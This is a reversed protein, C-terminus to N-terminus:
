RRRTGRQRKSRGCPVSVKITAKRRGGNHGAARLLANNNTRCLDRTPTLIGRRGGRLRLTFERIPVDPISAFRSLVRAGGLVTTGDLLIRVQGDLRVGLNPIQGPEAVLNVPGRLRGSLLPTRASAAGVLSGAPCAAAEFQQPTCVEEIDTPDLAIRRPLQVGVSRLNAEGANQSLKVRLGPRRGPKTKGKGTLSVKMRPSFDLARCGRARFSSTKVSSAGQASEFTGTVQKPGCGTPNLMFGPRDLDIGVTRLRLPIGQLIQPLPDSVVELHADREDVNIAARVVVTGLDFPGAIARVVISLGLPAGRYGGTLYVAGTLPFPQSGAGAEVVTTGIRSGAGCTGAAAQAAGCLPVSALRGTLGRPLRLSIRRLNQEGDTRRVTMTFGGSDGALPSMAGAVFLPNFGGGCGATVNFTSSVTVPTARSYPKLAASTTAPGCRPPTSLPARSGGKFQLTFRSFPLEPNATFTAVLRGTQPHPRVSGRLKLTFGPGHGVLFLRYPNGAVPTGLFIEGLVPEALLPTDLEITGIKSRNPCNAGANPGGVQADSCVALGSALAPSISMGEPLTFVADDLHSTARVGPDDSQPVNIDVRLGTPSDAVSTDPTVTISPNFPVQDCGVPGSATTSDYSLFNNPAAWSSVDLTTTLPGGCKTPTRLFAKRPAGSGNHDAPVGWLTLETALVPLLQSVQNISTRIRFEGNVNVLDADINVIAAGAVNFAFRAAHGGTDEMNYVNAPIPFPSTLSTVVNAVGIRSAPPCKFGPEEGTSQPERLDRESCTPFVNPNGVLGPPLDVRVNKLAGDPQPFSIPPFPPPLTVPDGQNLEFVVRAGTPAVGAQDELVLPDSPTGLVIPPPLERVTDAHFSGPVVGFDAQAVPATAAVALCSAFVAMALRRINSRVTTHANMSKNRRVNTREGM